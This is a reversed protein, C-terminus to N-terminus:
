NYIYKEGKDTLIYQTTGLVYKGKSFFGEDCLQNMVSEFNEKELPNLQNQFQMCRQMVWLEDKKINCKKIENFIKEKLNM